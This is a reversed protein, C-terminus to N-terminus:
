VISCINETHCQLEMLSFFITHGYIAEGQFKITAAKKYVTLDFSTLIESM